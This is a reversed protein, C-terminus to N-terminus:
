SIAGEREILSTTLSNEQRVPELPCAANEALKSSLIKEYVEVLESERNPPGRLTSWLTTRPPRPPPMPPPQRTPPPLAAPVTAGAPSEHLRSPEPLPTVAPSIDLPRPQTTGSLTQRPSRDRIHRRVWSSVTDKQPPLAGGTLNVRSQSSNGVCAEVLLESELSSHGGVSSRDAKGEKGAESRSDNGGSAGGRPVPVRRQYSAKAKRPDADGVELDGGTPPTEPTHGHVFERIKERTAQAVEEENRIFSFGPHERMHMEFAVASSFDVNEYNQYCALCKYFARRDHFSRCAALHSAALLGSSVLAQGRSSFRIARYSGVELYCYMCTFGWQPNSADDVAYISLGEADTRGCQCLLAGYCFERSPESAKLPPEPADVRATTGARNSFERLADEIDAKLLNARKLLAERRREVKEADKGDAEVKPADAKLTELEFLLANLQPRLAFVKHKVEDAYTNVFLM